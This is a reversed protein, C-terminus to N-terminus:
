RWLSEISRLDERMGPSYPALLVNLLFWMTSVNILWGTLKNRGFTFRLIVAAAFPIVATTVRAYPSLAAFVEWLPM